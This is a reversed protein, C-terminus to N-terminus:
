GSEVKLWASLSATDRSAPVVFWPKAAPMDLCEAVSPLRAQGGEEVAPSLWVATAGRATQWTLKPPDDAAFMAAYVRATAVADSLVHHLVFGYNGARWLLPVSASALPHKAALGMGLCAARLGMMGGTTAAAAFPVDVHRLALARCRAAHAASVQGCEAALVRWDSALGGWTVVVDGRESAAWLHDVLECAGEPAMPAGGGSHWLRVDPPSAPAALRATAGCLVRVPSTGDTPWAEPLLGDMELDFAVLPRLERGPTMRPLFAPASANFRRRTPSAM